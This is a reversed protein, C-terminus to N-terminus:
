FMYGHQSTFCLYFNKNSRNLQSDGKMTLVSQFIYLYCDFVMRTVFCRFEEFLHKDCILVSQGTDWNSHVHVLWMSFRSLWFGPWVLMRWRMLLFLASGRTIGGVFLIWWRWVDNFSFSCLGDGCQIFLILEQLAVLGDGEREWISSSFSFRQYPFQLFFDGVCEVVWVILHLNDVVGLLKARVKRYFVFCIGM